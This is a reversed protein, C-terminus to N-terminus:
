DAFMSSKNSVFAGAGDETETGETGGANELEDMATANIGWTVDGPFAEISANTVLLVAEGM